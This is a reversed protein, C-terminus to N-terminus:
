LAHSLGPAPAWTRPALSCSSQTGSLPRRQPLPRASRRPQAVGPLEKAIPGWRTALFEARPRGPTGTAAPASPATGTRVLSPRPFCGPLGAGQCWSVRRAEERTRLQVTHESLGRRDGGRLTAGLLHFLLLLRCEPSCHGSLNPREEVGRSSAVGPNGLRIM